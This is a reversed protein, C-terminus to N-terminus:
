ALEACAWVANAIAQPQASQAQRHLQSTLAQMCEEGPSHGLKAYAWLLNAVDQPNAKHVLQLLHHAAAERLCPGPDVGLKAYAWLVNSVDQMNVGQMNMSTSLCEQCDGDNLSVASIFCVAQADRLIATAQKAIAERLDQDPTHGITALGWISNALHQSTFAPLNIHVAATLKSLLHVSPRQQMKALAWMINGTAQGKFSPAQAGALGLVMEMGPHQFAAERDSLRMLKATRHLATATNIADFSSHLRCVIQLVQQSSDADRMLPMIQNPQLSSKVGSSHTGHNCPCLAPYVHAKTQHDHGM